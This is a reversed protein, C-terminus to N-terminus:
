SSPWIHISTVSASLLTPYNININLRQDNAISLAQTSKEYYQTFILGERIINRDSGTDVLALTVLTFESNIILKIKLVYKQSVTREIINLYEKQANSSEGIEFESDEFLKLESDIDNEKHNALEM